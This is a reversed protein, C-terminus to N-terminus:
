RHAPLHHGRYAESAMGYERVTSPSTIGCPGVLAGASNFSDDKEEELARGFAIDHQVVMDGMLVVM